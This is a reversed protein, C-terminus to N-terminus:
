RKAKPMPRDCTPCRPVIPRPAREAKPLSLEADIGLLSLDYGAADLENAEAALLEGDWASLRTLQNDIVRYACKDEESWGVAVGVRVTDRARLRAAAVRGEGALIQGFTKKDGDVIVLQTQGFKDWSRAILEIQEPSHTNPNDDRPVFKDLPWEEIRDVPASHRGRAARKPAVRSGM